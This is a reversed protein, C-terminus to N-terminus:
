HVSKYLVSATKM